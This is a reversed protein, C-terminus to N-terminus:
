GPRHEFGHGRSADDDARAGRRDLFNDPVLLVPKQDIEEGRALDDRGNGGDAFAFVAQLAEAVRRALGDDVSIIKLRDAQRRLHPHDLAFHAKSLARRSLRPQGAGTIM